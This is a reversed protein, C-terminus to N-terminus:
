RLGRRRRLWWSLSTFVGILTPWLPAAWLPTERAERVLRGAEADLQPPGYAGPTYHAGGVSQALRALFAADPSLEDLEPDRDTVAYVTEGEGLAGGAASAAKVKVRWPGRREAPLRVLAEGTKDTVAEFTVVEGGSQASGEFVAGEVGGFGVDRVRVSLPVEEGLLFNERAAAVLGRDGEPDKVLWRMTNKWFRLYAQNGQGLAAEAMIWRWTSDGLLAMTRGRGVERVALVPMPEGKQTRLSPHSLLVASGPAPGASLNLGDLASLRGWLAENETADGLLRTVPHVRGAGTLRPQFAAADTRPTGAGLQVPLIDAIPTGQYDGEDFSRDGGIMVFAGGEKVFTAVNGLLEGALEQFYPRYDFNQFIVLDFSALDEAFLQEYPFKILSLEKEDYSSRTDEHTRLIFFSVLDVAPDQKLFLRLFKQDFSPSGCVQLVRLRDRVVRVAVPMTNNGPVADGEWVPVSVEYVFRGSKNPKVSFSVKGAGDQDLAVDRQALLRGDQTLSVPVNRGEFGPAALTVDLTFPSHMFGFGGANVSVVSVDDLEGPVGAQYVTLPGPLRPPEPSDENTYRARMGGRDLGDTLVIVGALREGAYRESVGRLAQALDTSGQEFSPEGGATLERGFRFVELRDSPARDMVEALARAGRPEGSELVGMSRSDDILLVTRPPERHGAQEVWVPGAAAFVAVSLALALCLLEFGVPPSRRADRWTLVFTVLAAAVALGFLGGPTTFTLVADPGVEGGLWWWLSM